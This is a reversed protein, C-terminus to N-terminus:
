KQKWIRVRTKDKYIVLCTLCKYCDEVKVFKSLKETVPKDCKVRHKTLEINALQQRWTFSQNACSHM